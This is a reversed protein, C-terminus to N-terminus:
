STWAASRPPSDDIAAPVQDYDTVDLRRLEIRREPHRQRIEEGLQELAELRRAALALDYGRAALELALAHGIGSSAGTILATKTMTDGPRDQTAIGTPARHDLDARRDARAGGLTPHTRCRPDAHNHSPHVPEPTTARGAPRTRRLDARCPRGFHGPSGGAPSQRRLHSSRASAAVLSRRGTARLDAVVHDPIPAGPAFATALARRRQADTAATWVLPGIGPIALIREAPRQASLRSEPAWPACIVILRRALAPHREAIATAVLGGRSHGVLVAPGPILEAAEDAEREISGTGTVELALVRAHPEILALVRDWTHHTGGLGHILVVRPAHPPGTTVAGVAM